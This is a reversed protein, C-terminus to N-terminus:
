AKGRGDMQERSKKWEAVLDRERDPIPRTAPAEDRRVGRAIEQGRRFDRLWARRAPPFLLFFLIVALYILPRLSDIDDSAFLM